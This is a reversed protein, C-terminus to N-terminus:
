GLRLGEAGLTRGVIAGGRSGTLESDCVPPAITCRPLADTRALWTPQKRSTASRYARLALSVPHGIMRRDDLPQRSELDVLPACGRRRGTRDQAHGWGAGALGRREHGPDRPQEVLARQRFGHARDGEVAPGCLLETFPDGRRQLREALLQRRPHADAREVCEPEFDQAFRADGRLWQHIAVLDEARHARVGGDRLAAPEVGDQRPELQVQVDIGRLDLAVPLGARDGPRVSGVLRLDPPAAPEVEIVQHSPRQPQQLAIRVEERAPAIAAPV